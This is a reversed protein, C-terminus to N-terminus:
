IREMKKLYRSDVRQCMGSFLVTVGRGQHTNGKWDKYAGEAVSVIIGYKGVGDAWNRFTILEGVEWSFSITKGKPRAKRVERRAEALKRKEKKYKRVNKRLDSPFKRRM